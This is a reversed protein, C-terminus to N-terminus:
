KYNYKYKERTTDVFIIGTVDDITINFKELCKNIEDENEYEESSVM